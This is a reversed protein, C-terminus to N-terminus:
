RQPQVSAVTGDPGAMVLAWFVRYRSSPVTVTAIGMRTAGSLRMVSDHHRSGRWGSFAEALTRYGASTNDGAISTRVGARGLRQNLATRSVASLDDSRSAEMAMERAIEVLRPDVIVPGLGNNRRHSSIMQAAMPADVTELTSRGLDRYFSPTTDVRPGQLCGALGLSLGLVAIAYRV